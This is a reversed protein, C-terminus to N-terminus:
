SSETAAQSAVQEQRADGLGPGPHLIMALTAQDRRYRLIADEPKKLLASGLCPLAMNKGMYTARALPFLIWPSYRPILVVGGFGVISRVKLFKQPRYKLTIQRFVPKYCHFTQAVITGDAYIRPGYCSVV